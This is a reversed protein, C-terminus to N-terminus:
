SVNIMAVDMCLLIATIFGLATVIYIHMREANTLEKPCKKCCTKSAAKKHTKNIVKSKATKTSKKKKTTPM